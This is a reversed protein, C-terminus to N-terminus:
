RCLGKIASLRTVSQPLKMFLAMTQLVQLKKSPDELVAQLADEGLLWQSNNDGEEAHKSSGDQGANERTGTASGRFFDRLINGNESMFTSLLSGVEAVEKTIVHKSKM